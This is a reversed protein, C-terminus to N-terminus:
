RDRERWRILTLENGAVAYVAEIEHTLAHGNQWGRATVLIRSPEDRLEGAAVALVTDSATARNITGDGDVTLSGAARRVLDPSLGPVGYLEDLIRLPRMASSVSAEERPDSPDVPAETVGGVHARIAQAAREADLPDTFFSLLRTLSRVDATNVDIRAGVDVLAVALRADGLATEPEVIADLDNLLARRASPEPAAVLGNEITAVALTIGSEAAYRAVTRARYNAAIGNTSRTAAVAGSSVAALAVIVWLVLVLAAGRRDTVATERSV